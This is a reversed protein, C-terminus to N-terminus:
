VDLTFLIIKDILLLNWYSHFSFDNQIYFSQLFLVFRPRALHYL